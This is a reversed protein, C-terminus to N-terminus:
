TEMERIFAQVAPTRLQENRSVHLQERIRTRLDDDQDRAVPPRRIELRAERIRVAWGQRALDTLLWIVAVLAQRAVGDCQASDVIARKRATELRHPRESPPLGSVTALELAFRILLHLARGDRLSKPEFPLWLDTRISPM